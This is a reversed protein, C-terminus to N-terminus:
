ELVLVTGDPYVIAAEDSSADFFGLGHQFALVQVMEHAREAVEDAFSGYIVHAAISYDTVEDRDDEDDSLPGNMPPFHEAIEAFWAQLAPAAVKPDDHDHDENWDTQKEYWAIFATAERPAVSADFVMMDYSM